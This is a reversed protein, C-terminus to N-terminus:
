PGNETDERRYRCEERIRCEACGGPKEGDKERVGILATVSKQPIMLGGPTLTIGIRRGVNLVECVIKQQELPFDGYGPSFRPTLKRPAMYEALDACLNDCVNEVAASALADMMLADAMNMGQARRILRETEAGLTAAMLIVSGGRIVRRIDEGEPRFGTGKLLGDAGTEFLRWVAMPRASAAVAEACRELNRETEPDPKGRIGLYRLAEDRRIETLRAEM